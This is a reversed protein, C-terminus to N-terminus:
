LFRLPLCILDLALLLIIMHLGKPLYYLLLHWATFNDMIQVLLGVM